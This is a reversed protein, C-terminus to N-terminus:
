NIKLRDLFFEQLSEISITSNFNYYPIAGLMKCGSMETIIGPNTSESIDGPRKDMYNYIIGLVSLNKIKKAYGVTLVTHNIIGLTPRSVVILPVDLEEALDANTELKESVPSLLGGAGEILLIDYQKALKYYKEKIFDFRVVVGEERAAVGPALKAKFCYPNILEYDDGINFIQKYFAVDESILGYNEAIGGSAVPKMFGVSFGRKLFLAAIGATVFTKGVETDTGAIFITKM